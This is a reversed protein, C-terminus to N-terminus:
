CRGELYFMPLNLIAGGDLFLLRGHTDDVETVFFSSYLKLDALCFLVVKQVFLIFVIVVLIHICPLWVLITHSAVLQVLGEIVM